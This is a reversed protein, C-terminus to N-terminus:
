GDKLTIRGDGRPRMTIPSERTGSTSFRKLSTTLSTLSSLVLRYQATRYHLACSVKILTYYVVDCYLVICNLIMCYLVTCYLVQCNLVTCLVAHYLVTCSLVTCALVM